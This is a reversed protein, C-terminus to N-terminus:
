AIRKQRRHGCGQTGRARARRKVPRRCCTATAASQVVRGRRKSRRASGRRFAPYQCVQAQFPTRNLAFPHRLSHRLLAGCGQRRRIFTRSQPNAQSTGFHLVMAPLWAYWNVSLLLGTSLFLMVVYHVSFDGLLLMGLLTAILLLLTGNISSVLGPAVGPTIISNWIAEMLTPAPVIATEATAEMTNAASSAM